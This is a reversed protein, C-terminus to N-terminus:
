DIKEFKFYVIFIILSIISIIIGEKLGVPTYNFEIKHKGKNLKIGIFNDYVKYKKVVKGDVKVEWGADYPITTFLINKNKTSVINGKINTDSFKTIKLQNKSIENYFEIFRKSNLYYPHISKELKFYGYQILKVRIKDGIEYKNEIKQISNTRYDLTNVLNNNVYLELKQHKGEFESYFPIYIDKDNVIEIEYENSNIKKYPVKIFLDKDTSIMTKYITNQFGLYDIVKDHKLKKVFELSKPSIMYGLNLSHNNRYINYISYNIGYVIGINSSHKYSDIKFYDNYKEKTSIIYKIGLISDLFETNELYNYVNTNANAGVNNMFNYSSQEMTSIFTSAGKYDFFFSDLYTYEKKKEIRYFNNKKNLKNIKKGVKYVNDQYEEKSYMGFGNTILYGNTLLETIILLVLIPKFKSVQNQDKYNNILYLIILYLISIGLNIYVFYNKDFLISYMTLAQLIIFVILYKDKKIGKLKDITSCALYITFFVFLFSYRFNFCIPKNFGHWIYNLTTVSFSLIFIILVMFSLMKEKKTIKKSFFYFFNLILILVGSYIMITNAENLVNTWGYDIFFMDKFIKIIDFDITITSIISEGATKISNTLEIVTPLLLFFGMLGSLISIFIYKFIIKFIEKRNEKFTYKLLINYILFIFTFIAIMFAIYYNTFLAMFFTIGYLLGSEKNVLKKIGLMILPTLYICDQWMFHIYYAMNYGMLGYCISFILLYINNQKKFSYKLFIYMFLSALGLKILLIIILAINLNAKSFLLVILNLPSALYYAFAGIMSGGIGKSFSYLPLPFSDHYYNFLSIYQGQMDSMFITEKFVMNHCMFIMFMVLVPIIFALIYYKKNKM